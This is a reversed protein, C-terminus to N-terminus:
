RDNGAQSIQWAPPVSQAGLPVVNGSDVPYSYDYGPLPPVPPALAERLQTNEDRLRQNEKELLKVAREKKDLEKQLSIAQSDMYALYGGSNAVNMTNLTMVGGLSAQSLAPLTITTGQYPEWGYGSQIDRPFNPDASDLQFFSDGQVITQNQFDERWAEFCAFDDVSDKDYSAPHFAPESQEGSYKLFTPFDVFRVFVAVNLKAAIEFLTKLTWGSYGPNELRSVVTQKKEILDAFETQSKDGRFERVQKALVQRTHAAVYGDRYEKDHMKEALRTLRHSGAHNLEQSM